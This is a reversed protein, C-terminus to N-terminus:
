RRAPPKASFVCFAEADLVLAAAHVKLDSVQLKAQHAFLRDHMEWFKRQEGACSAAEGAKQAQPHISLPFNRFIIRVKDGYTERVKNVTAVVFCRTWSRAEPASFWGVLHDGM